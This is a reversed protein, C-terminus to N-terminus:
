DFAPASLRCRFEVAARQRELWELAWAGEGKRRIARCEEDAGFPGQVREVLDARYLPYHACRCEHARDRHRTIASEDDRREAIAANVPIRKLLACRPNRQENM